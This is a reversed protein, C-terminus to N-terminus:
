EEDKLGAQKLIADRLDPSYDRGKHMPLTIPRKGKMEMKISHKGGITQVYGVSELLKKATRQNLVKPIRRKRGTARRKLFDMTRSDCGDPLVM